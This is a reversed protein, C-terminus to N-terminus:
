AVNRSQWYSVCLISSFTKNYSNWMSFIINLNGNFWWRFSGIQTVVKQMMIGIRKAIKKMNETISVFPAYHEQLGPPCDPWVRWENAIKVSWEMGSYHQFNRERHRHSGSTEWCSTPCKLLRLLERSHQRLCCAKFTSIAGHYVPQTQHFTLLRSRYALSIWTVWIEPTILPM